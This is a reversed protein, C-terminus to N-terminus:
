VKSWFWDLSNDISKKKNEKSEIEDIWLYSIFTVFIFLFDLAISMAYANTNASSGVISLEVAHGVIIALFAFLLIGLILSKKTHKGLFFILLFLVLAVLTALPNTFDITPSTM